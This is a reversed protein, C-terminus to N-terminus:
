GERYQNLLAPLGEFGEMSMVPTLQRRYKELTQTFKEDGLQGQLISALGAAQRWDESGISNLLHMALASYFVAEESNKLAHHAEATYLTYLGQLYINGSGKVADAGKTLIDLGEQPRDCMVYGVGLSNYALAQSQRDGQKVALELGQNLYAIASDYVDKDGVDNVRAQLVQAYGLNVLANAEGVRDGRQRALILARQSTAVGDAYDKELVANRALHCLDATECPLDGAAQAIKLAREYFAKAETAKGLM